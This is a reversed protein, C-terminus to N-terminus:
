SLQLPLPFIKFSILLAVGTFVHFILCLLFSVTTISFTETTQISSSVGWLMGKLWLRIWPLVKVTKLEIFASLHSLLFTELKGDILKLDNEKLYFDRIKIIRSDKVPTDHFHHFTRRM